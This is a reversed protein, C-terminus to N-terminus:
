WVHNITTLPKSPMGFDIVADKPACKYISKCRGDLFVYAIQCPWIPWKENLYDEAEQYDTFKRVHSRWGSKETFKICISYMKGAGKQGNSKRRPTNNM